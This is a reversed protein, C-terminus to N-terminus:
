LPVFRLQAPTGEPDERNELESLCTPDLRFGAPHEWGELDEPVHSPNSVLHAVLAGKLAKNWHAVPKLEGDRGPSLFVATVENARSPPDWAAAHENPLLNWVVTSRNTRSWLHETLPERWWSSLKGLGPPMHMATNGLPTFQLDHQTAKNVMDMGWFTFFLHTEIGEGLAANALVLGPYAMDLSGKSCIIALKRDTAEDDFVPVPAEMTLTM